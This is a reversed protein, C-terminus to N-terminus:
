NHEYSSPGILELLTLDRINSLVDNQTNNINIISFLLRCFVDFRAVLDMEPIIIPQSILDSKTILPQTSGRNLNTFNVLKLQQYAYYYYISKNPKIILVNDSVWIRQNWLRLGGLTGVRGTLIVEEDVLYEETYGILGNAGVVPIGSVTFEHKKLGKGSSIDVISELSEVVWGEPILGLPSPVLKGTAGPYNFDVFWEKFIAQAIAELTENMRRNLEIKDDFASLIEVIRKQLSLTPLEMTFRSLVRANVGPQASGSISSKIFERWYQSKLLYAVYYPDAIKENIQFRILYSAFVADKVEEKIIEATGTTAGTRAVVIDGPILKYREYDEPSIECYPVNNWNLGGVIDTIRLFKPGVAEPQASATYGYQINEAIEALTYRKWKESCM